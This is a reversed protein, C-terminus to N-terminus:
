QKVEPQGKLKGIQDELAERRAPDKEVAAARQLFEITKPIDNLKLHCYAIAELIDSDDGKLALAKDFYPLAEGPKKQKYLIMGADYAAALNQPDLELAKKYSELAKDMMEKQQYCMGLQLHAPAFSAEQAIVKQFTEAAADISKKHYQCVGSLYLANTEVPKKELLPALIALAGDYDGAKVKASASNIVAVDEASVENARVEAALFVTFLLASLICYFNKTM